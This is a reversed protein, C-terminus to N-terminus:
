GSLGVQASKRRILEEWREKAWSARNAHTREKGNFLFIHCKELAKASTRWKSRESSELRLRFTV